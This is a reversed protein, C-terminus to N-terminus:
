ADADIEAKLTTKLSKYPDTANTDLFYAHRVIFSEGNYDTDVFWCAIGSRIDGSDPHYVDVGHVRVRLQGGDAEEM